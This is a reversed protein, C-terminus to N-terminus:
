YEGTVAGDNRVALQALTTSSITEAIFHSSGDGFLVLVGTPHASRLPTNNGYNACVGDTCSSGFFQTKGPNIQYALTTTNYGRQNNHPSAPLTSSDNNSGKCGMAFGYTVGPRYDKRTTASEWLWDGVEGVVMVNSTGDTIGAFNTKSNFFMVGGKGHIGVDTSQVTTAIGGFSGDTGAIAVYDAIMTKPDASCVEADLPSSPCRYVDFQPSGAGSGIGNSITSTNFEQNTGLQAKDYANGLEIFPMIYAMWSTGFKQSTATGHVGMNNSCGAPYRRNVDHFNHLGLGMQKLNNVCQTRRAAERAAQVAPLLLAILVGIIAIVVLLEVLTFGRKVQTTM